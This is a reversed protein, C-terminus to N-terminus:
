YECTERQREWIAGDPPIQRRPETVVEIRGGYIKKDREREGKRESLEEAPAEVIRLAGRKRSTLSMLYALSYLNEQMRM